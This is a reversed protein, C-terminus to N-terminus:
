NDDSGETISGQNRAESSIEGPAGIEPWSLGSRDLLPALAGSIWMTFPTSQGREIASREEEPFISYLVASVLRLFYGASERSLGLITVTGSDTAQVVSDDPIFATFLAALWEWMTELQSALHEAQRYNELLQQGSIIKLHNRMSEFSLFAGPHVTVAGQGAGMAPEVKALGHFVETLQMISYTVAPTPAAMRRNVARRLHDRLALRKENESYSASLYLQRKVLLAEMRNVGAILLARLREIDPAYGLAALMLAARDYGRPFGRIKGKSAAEHALTRGIILARPLCEPEWLWEIGQGRGRGHQHRLHKPILGERVWSTLQTM